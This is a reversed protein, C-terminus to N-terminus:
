PRSNIKPLTASDIVKLNNCLVRSVNFQNDSKIDQFSHNLNFLSNNVKIDGYIIGDGAKMYFENSDLIIKNNSNTIKFDNDTLTIYDTKTKM